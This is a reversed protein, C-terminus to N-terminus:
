DYKGWEVRSDSDALYGHCELPLCVKQLSINKKLSSLIVSVGENELSDDDISLEEISKNHQIVESIAKAGEIELCNGDMQLIQISCNKILGLALQVAGESNISCDSINLVELQCTSQMVIEGLTNCSIKSLESCSIDLHKINSNQRLGELICSTSYSSLDNGGINLLEIRTNALLALQECDEESINTEWLHLEKLTSMKYSTLTKILEMAGGAGFSNDYLYLVHLKTLKPIIQSFYGLADSDLANSGFDLKKINQLIQRPIKHFWQIGELTLDNGSFDAEEIIGEWTSRPSGMLGRSLYKVGKNGMPYESFKLIWRCRSHAICHGLSFYDFCSWAYCGEVEVLEGPGLITEIDQSEMMWVYPAPDSKRSLHELVMELTFDDFQGLGFYFNVVENLQLHKKIVLQQDDPSYFQRIYYASLFKQLTQHVFSYPLQGDQPIYRLLGLSNGQVMDSNFKFKQVIIGEWALKCVMKFEFEIDEPLEELSSILSQKNHTLQKCVFASYLETITTPPSLEMSKNWHLVEEVIEKTTLHGQIAAKIASNLSVYDAKIDTGVEIGDITMYIINHKEFFNVADISKIRERLSLAVKAPLAWIIILSGKIVKKLFMTFSPLCFKRIIHDKLKDLEELTCTEYNLNVVNVVFEKLEAENPREGIVPCCEAFDCFRTNCRFIKLSNLYEDMKKELEPDDLNSILSELLTYNLFNWRQCLRGWMEDITVYCKFENEMEQFFDQNEKRYEIPVAFIRAKLQGVNM